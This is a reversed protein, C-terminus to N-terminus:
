GEEEFFEDFPGVVEEGFVVIEGLLLDALRRLSEGHGVSLSIGRVL